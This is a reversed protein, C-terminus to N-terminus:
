QAYKAATQTAVNTLPSHYFPSPIASALEAVVLQPSLEVSTMLLQPHTETKM